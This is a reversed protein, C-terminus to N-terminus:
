FSSYNLLCLSLFVLDILVLKFILCKIGKFIHWVWDFHDTDVLAKIINDMDIPVDWAVVVSINQAVV